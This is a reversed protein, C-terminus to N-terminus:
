AFPNRIEVGMINQAHRLDETYLVNCGGEVAAAVMMSDYFSYNTQEHISIGRRFLERSPYVECLPILVEDLYIECTVRDMGTAREKLAVNLFEQIVQYSIIGKGSKLSQLVLQTARSRKGPSSADFTYALINTDLFFRKEGNM